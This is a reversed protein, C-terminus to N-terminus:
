LMIPLKATTSGLQKATKCVGGTPPGGSNQPTAPPPLFVIEYGCWWKTWNLDLELRILTWYGFFM